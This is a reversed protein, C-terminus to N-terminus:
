GWRNSTPLRGPGTTEEPSGRVSTLPGTTEEPSIGRGAVPLSRGKGDSTSLGSSGSGGPRPEGSRGFTLVCEPLVGRRRGIGIGAAGNGLSLQPVIRARKPAIQVRNPVIRVRKPVIPCSESVNPSPKESQGFSYVNLKCATIMKSGRKEVRRFNRKHTNFTQGVIWLPGGFWTKKAPNSQNFPNLPNLM